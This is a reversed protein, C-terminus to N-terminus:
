FLVQRRKWSAVRLSGCNNKRRPRPNPEFVPGRVGDATKGQIFVLKNRAPLGREMETAVLGATQRSKALVREEWSYGM